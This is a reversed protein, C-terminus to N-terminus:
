LGPLLSRLYTDTMLPSPQGSPVSLNQIPNSLVASRVGGRAFPTLAMLAGIEPSVFHAGGAGLGVSMPLATGSVGSPPVKSGERSYQRGPGEAFKAIVELNGSLPKGRDLLRGIIQADVNGNGLNLAREIDYTKAIYTRSERLQDILETRGSRRATTEIFRELMEARQDLAEAQRKSAPTASVDYHKWFDKAEARTDRLRQLAKGAMPSLGAIQRYPEAAVTRLQNLSAETIPANEAIGLEQRVLRNTVDQNKLEAQQKLAAKGAFGEIANGAFTPNVSSPPVVYGAERARTLTDTNVSQRARMDNGAQIARNQVATMVPAATMGAAMGLEPSGTKETVTQGTVGAIGGQLLNSGFQGLSQAPAIASTVGAQLAAKAIRGSPTTPDLNKNTLGAREFLGKIYDPLKTPEPAFESAGAAVLPTGVAAKILNGVNTPTNLLADGINAIAENTWSLGQKVAGPRTSTTQAEREARLRFEFEEEEGSM